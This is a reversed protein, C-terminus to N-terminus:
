RNNRCTNGNDDSNTGDPCTTNSYIIGASGSFSYDLNFSAGELNANSLDSYRLDANNLNANSFDVGSFDFYWFNIGNLNAGSLNAKTGVHWAGEATPGILHFGSDDLTFSDFVAICLWDNPLSTPCEPLYSFRSNILHVSSLDVGSLDVRDFTSDEIQADGFHVYSFDANYFSGSRLMANHGFSSYNSALDKELAQISNNATEIMSELEDNSTNSDELLVLLSDRYTEADAISSQLMAVNSSLTAIETNREELQRQLEANDQNQQNITENMEDNSQRLDEIQQELDTTDTGTCGALASTLMILVIIMPELQSM